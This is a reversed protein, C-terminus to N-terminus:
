STYAIPEFHTVPHGLKAEIQGRCGNIYDRM